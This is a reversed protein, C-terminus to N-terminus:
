VFDAEEMGLNEVYVSRKLLPTHEHNTCLFPWSKILKLQDLITNMKLNRAKTMNRVYYLGHTRGIIADYFGSYLGYM